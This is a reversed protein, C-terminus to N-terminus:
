ATEDTWLTDTMATTKRVRSDQSSLKGTWEVPCNPLGSLSQFSFHALFFVVRVLRIQVRGDGLPGLLGILVVVLSAIHIVMILSSLIREQLQQFVLAKPHMDEGKYAWPMVNKDSSYIPLKLFQINVRGGCLCVGLGHKGTEGTGPIPILKDKAEVVVHCSRFSESISTGVMGPQPGAPISSRTATPEHVHSKRPSEFSWCPRGFPVSPNGGIGTRVYIATRHLAIRGHLGDSVAMEMNKHVRVLLPALPIASQCRRSGFRAIHVTELINEFLTTRPIWIGTTKGSAAALQVTELQGTFKATRPVFICHANPSMSIDRPAHNDQLHRFRHLLRWVLVNPSKATHEHFVIDMPRVFRHRLQPLLDNLSDGIHEHSPM